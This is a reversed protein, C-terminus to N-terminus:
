DIPELDNAVAYNNMAATDEENWRNAVKQAEEETAFVGEGWLADSMYDSNIRIEDGRVIVDWVTDKQVRWEACGIGSWVSYVTDGSRCPLTIQYPHIDTIIEICRKDWWLRQHDILVEVANAGRDVFTKDVCFVDEKPKEEVILGVYKSMYDQWTGAFNECKSGDLLRIKKM